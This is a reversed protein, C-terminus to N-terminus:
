HGLRVLPARGPTDKGDEAAKRVEKLISHVVGDDSFSTVISVSGSAHRRCQEQSAIMTCPVRKRSLARSGSFFVRCACVLLHALPLSIHIALSSVITMEAKCLSVCPCRGQCADIKVQLKVINRATSRSM